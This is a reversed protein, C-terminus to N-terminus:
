WGAAGDGYLAYTGDSHLMLESGYDSVLFNTGPADSLTFSFGTLIDVSATPNQINNTLAVSIGAGYIDITASANSSTVTVLNANASTAIGLGLAISLFLNKFSRRSWNAAVPVFVTTTKM